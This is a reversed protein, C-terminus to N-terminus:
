ELNMIINKIKDISIKWLFNKEESGLEVNEKLEGILPSYYHGCDIALQRFLPVVYKNPILEIIKCGRKAFVMNTLGAGHPGVMVRCSSAAKIQEEITLLEMHLIKYGKNELYKEVISKNILPRSNSKSRSIYIKEYDPNIKNYFKRCAQYFSIRFSSTEPVIGINSFYEANKDYKILNCDIGVRNALDKELTNLEYSSIIQCDLGSLYYAWLAPMRDVISHYHNNQGIRPLFFSKELVNNRIKDAVKGTIRSYHYMDTMNHFYSYSNGYRFIINTPGCCIKADQVLYFINEKNSHTNLGIISSKQFEDHDDNDENTQSFIRKESIELPISFKIPQSLYDSSNLIASVFDSRKIVERKWTETLSPKINAIIVNTSLELNKLLKLSNNLAYSIRTYRIHSNSKNKYINIKSGHVEIAKYLNYNAIITILNYYATEFNNGDSFTNELYINGGMHIFINEHEKKIIKFYDIIEELTEANQAFESIIHLANNKTLKQNHEKNIIINNKSNRNQDLHADYNSLLLQSSLEEKMRLYQSDLAHIQKAYNRKQEGATNLRLKHLQNRKKRNEQMSNALM